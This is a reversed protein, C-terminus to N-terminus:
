LDLIEDKYYMQEELKTIKDLFQQDNSQVEQVARQHNIEMNLMKQAQKEIM